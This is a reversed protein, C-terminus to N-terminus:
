LNKNVFDNGFTLLNMITSLSSVGSIRWINEFKNIPSTWYFWEYNMFWKSVLAYLAQATYYRRRCVFHKLRLFYFNNGDFNKLGM